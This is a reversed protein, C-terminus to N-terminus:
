GKSPAAKLVVFNTGNEATRVQLLLGKELSGKEIAAEAAAVTKVPKQDVKVVVMGSKLGAGDAISNSEVETILVGEVHDKGFRKSEEQSLETIKVGIKELSTAEPEGSFPQQGSASAFTRPQEEITVKLTRTAGDRLVSVDATNGVPLAAVMKQLDRADKVPKGALTTLIDGDRLGAKAAPSGATVKGIVVGAHDAVGLREAVEPALATVQVGLFGRHVQGDKLLQEMVNKVLNSSIALGIGQFGGTESKIASNIGVVQGALNVLPGGSNGPNIAADIQLFDEYMNLHVDRGKASVIGSTVTGTLGLPAGVALVRDGIEMASSDGLELFPLPAKASIRVIALDTKPDRKIDKSTFTRGDQLTVQVQDAGRVVHDNTLVVGAADVVFGSGFARGPMGHGPPVPRPSFEELKRRFEEPLGPFQDFPSRGPGPGHTRTVQPAAKAEISVVAPLVHKVIDRYSTLEKPVPLAAPRGVSLAQGALLAGTLAVMGAASCIVSYRKVM